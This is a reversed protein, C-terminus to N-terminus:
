FAVSLQLGYERTTTKPFSATMEKGDPWAWYAYGNTLRKAKYKGISWLRYYPSITIGIPGADIDWDASLRYGLGSSSFDNGSSEMIAPGYMPIGGLYWQGSETFIYKSGTKKTAIFVWDFEGMIKIKAAGTKIQTSLGLPLYLYSTSMKGMTIFDPSPAETTDKHMRFGLGLSGELNWYETNILKKGGMGKFELAWQGRKANPDYFDPYYPALYSTAGCSGGGCMDVVPVITNYITIPGSRKIDNSQAYRAEFTFFNDTTQSLWGFPKYTTFKLFAGKFYGADKQEAAGRSTEEFRYAELGINFFNVKENDEDETEFSFTASFLSSALSCFIVAFILKIRHM